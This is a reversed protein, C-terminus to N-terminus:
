FGIDRIIAKIESDSHYEVVSVSELTYEDGIATKIYWEARKPLNTQIDIFARWKRYETVTSSIVKTWILDRVETGPVISEVSKNNVKEWQANEPIDTISSFPLLGFTGQINKEFKELSDKPIPKTTISDLSLRNKKIVENQIDWLVFQDGTKILKVDLSRSVWIKQIPEIKNPVFHSICINKIKAVAEYVQRFEVAEAVPTGFLLFLGVAILIVAAVAPIRFTRINMASVKQRIRQPFAIIKASIATEPEYEPESIIEVNIGWQNYLEAKAGNKPLSVLYADQEQNIDEISGAMKRANRLPWLEAEPPEIFGYGAPVEFRGREVISYISNHLQRMKEFCRPCQRLHSTLSERFKVHQDNAPEIGYPFVYDFLDNPGVNECPFDNTKCSDAAEARMTSRADYLLNRCTRCLCIHELIEPNLQEFQMRAVLDTILKSNDRIVSCDDSQVFNQKSLFEVLRARKKYDLNWSYITNLDAKCQPCLEIHAVISAPVDITIKTQPDALLPLYQKAKLCDVEVGAAWGAYLDADLQNFVDSAPSLELNRPSEKLGYRTAIGSDERQAISYLIDSIKQLKQLCTSCRAIHSVFPGRSIGNGNESESKDIGFPLCYDFLDAASVARCPYEAPKELKPMQEIMELRADNLLQRCSNCLCIHELNKVPVKDFQLRAILDISERVDSCEPLRDFTPHAYFEALKSLQKPKLKLRLLLGLDNLCQPCNEIHVTVPTPIRMELRADAVIPLFEKVQCCYVKENLLSFHRVLLSTMNKIYFAREQSLPLSFVAGYQIFTKSCEPCELVHKKIDNPISGNTGNRLLNSFYEETIQCPNLSGKCRDAMQQTYLKAREDMQEKTIPDKLFSLFCRQFFLRIHSPSIDYSDPLNSLYFQNVKFAFEGNKEFFEKVEELRM